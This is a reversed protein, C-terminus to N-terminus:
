FGRSKIRSHDAGPRQYASHDPKYVPRDWISLSPPLAVNKDKPTLLEGTSRMCAQGKDGLVPPFSHVFASHANVRTAKKMLNPNGADLKM